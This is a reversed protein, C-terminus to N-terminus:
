YELGHTVRSWSFVRSHTGIFVVLGVDYMRIAMEMVNVNVNVTVNVFVKTVDLSLITCIQKIRGCPSSVCFVTDSKVLLRILNSGISLGIWNTLLM